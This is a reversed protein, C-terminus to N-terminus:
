RIARQRHDLRTVLLVDGPGLALIAKALAKRDTVAGSVKESYVREAGAAQYRAKNLMSPKATQQFPAYGIIMEREENQAHCRCMLGEHNLGERRQM